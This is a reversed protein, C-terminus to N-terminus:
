DSPALVQIEPHERALHQLRQRLLTALARIRPHRLHERRMVLAEGSELPLKLPLAQQDGGLRLSLVTGYGITVAAETQGEWLERRYRGMRVPTNWLGLGKLAKEVKPYAGAPLGLSPFAQLDELRLAAQRLLPHGRAVTLHVPMHSLELSALEPDDPGPVDPLGALWADVVRERLLQLNRQMGVINSLGLRWHEPMPQCLLPASWYTSELRLPRHHLFRAEQHVRRELDLLTRDGRVEWEGEVRELRVGLICAAKRQLRSVTSPTFGFRQGVEEGTRLWILGDFAELVDLEVM